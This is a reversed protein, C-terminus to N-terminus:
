SKRAQKTALLTRVQPQHHPDHLELTVPLLRGSLTATAIQHRLEDTLAPNHILTSRDREAFYFTIRAHGQAVNLWAITKRGHSARALWGGDRSYRWALLAGSEAIMASLEDWTDAAPGLAARISETTPEVGPDRFVSTMADLRGVRCGDEMTIRTLTLDPLSDIASM